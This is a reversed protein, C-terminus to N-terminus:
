SSPEDDTCVWLPPLDDDDEEVPPPPPVEAATGFAKAM